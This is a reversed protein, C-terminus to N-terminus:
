KRLLLTSVYVDNFNNIGMLLPILSRSPSVRNRRFTYTQFEFDRDLMFFVHSFPGDSYNPM